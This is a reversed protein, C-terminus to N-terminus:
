CYSGRILYLLYIETLYSDIHLIPAARAVHRKLTIIFSRSAPDKKRLIHGAKELKIAVRSCKSSDINLLRRLESQLLGDSRSGILDLAKDQLASSKTAPAKKKKAM